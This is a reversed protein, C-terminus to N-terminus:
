CASTCGARRPAVARRPASPRALLTGAGSRAARRRCYRPLSGQAPASRHLRASRLRPRLQHQHVSSPASPLPPPPRWILFRCPRIKQTALRLRIAAPLSPRRRATTRRPGDLDARCYRCVLAFFILSAENVRSVVTGDAAREREEERRRIREMVREAEEVAERRRSSGGPSPLTPLSLLSSSASSGTGTRRRSSPPPRRVSRLPTSLRTASPSTSYSRSSRRGGGRRDREGPTQNEEDGGEEEEVRSLGDEGDARFRAVFESKPSLKIRKSSRKEGEDGLFGEDSVNEERDQSQRLPAPGPAPAGHRLYEDRNSSLADIEDVLAALHTRTVTDYTPQFLKLPSAAAPPHLLPSPIPIRAPSHPLPLSSDATPPALSSRSRISSAFESAEYVTPLPAPDFSPPSPLGSLSRSPVQDHSADEEDSSWGLGPRVEMELPENGGARVGGEREETGEEDTSEEEDDDDESTTTVTGGEVPAPVFPADDSSEGGGDAEDREEAEARVSRRLFRERRGLAPPEKRSREVAEGGGM